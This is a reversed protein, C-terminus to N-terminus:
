TLEEEKLKKRPSPSPVHPSHQKKRSLSVPTSEKKSFNQSNKRRKASAGKQKRQSGAKHAAKLSKVFDSPLEEAEEEEREERRAFEVEYIFDEDGDDDQEIGLTAYM